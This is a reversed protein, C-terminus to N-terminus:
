ITASSKVRRKAGSLWGRRRFWIFIGLSVSAMLGLAYFYGYEWHTEPLNAFNMGYISAIFNIPLFFCSFITLVRMVENTKHSAENTRQSALSVFLNLLSNINELVEDSYFSLNDIVDKADQFQPSLEIDAGAMTRNVPETTARLMRKFVSTKRKLYYGKSLRFKRSRGAGFIETEFLELENLCELVPREYSRLVGNMLDALVHEPSSANQSKKSWREMLDQILGQDKRHISLVFKQSFFIAVKRTLDQVSDADAPADPDYTRLVVFSVDEILEYKPLHEPQLCDQVSTPHLNYTQALQELREPSPNSVDLWHFGQFDIRTEAM